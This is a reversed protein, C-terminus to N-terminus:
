RPAHPCHEYLDLADRYWRGCTQCYIPQSTEVSQLFRGTPDTARPRYVDPRYRPQTERVSPRSAVPPPEQYYESYSSYGGFPDSSRQSYRHWPRGSYSGAQVSYYDSGNYGWGGVGYGGPYSGFLDTLLNGRPRHVSYSTSWNGPRPPAQHVQWAEDYLVRGLNQAERQDADYAVFGGAGALAQGVDGGILIGLGLLGLATNRRGEERIPDARAIGSLVLVLMLCGVILLSTRM